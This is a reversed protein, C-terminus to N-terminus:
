ESSQGRAGDASARATAAAPSRFRKLCAARTLFTTAGPGALLAAHVVNPRNLALDLQGGAFIEIIAIERPKDRMERKLGAHLRGALKRVGDGGADAAHILAALDDRELAAEVKATGAHVLGAKGAIALADLASRELLRETDEALQPGVAVQRKFGRPFVNRRAAEEVAARSASIWIGRGPLKRKVDPVVEGAPGIVFRIMEDVPKVERTLACHRESGSSQTGRDLESDHATALM